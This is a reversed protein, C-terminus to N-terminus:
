RYTVPFGSHGGTASDHLAQLVRQHLASSNGLWVRGHHRIIGQYLQFAGEQEKKVSLEQLLKVAQADTAYSKIVEDLWAPQSSSITALTPQAPYRCRSLADAVRNDQGKRYCIRYNLGLLKTFAKQQWPTHLRQDDLHTLSRHDTKIIFESTQLYPRWHDVALIIAVFEKEYTSLGKSKPGLARSIFALPHSSQSLVAGVGVDSADTEVVFPKSFDPMALVPASALAQKLHQFAEEASASWTFISGKRLLDTLPKSIIGFNRVFKRYYGALGLFGRLQKPTTPQIWNKIAEIKSNDTSVGQDSIVHGLYSLSRQGFACKSLKVKWDHQRLLQLVQSLHHIHEDLTASYVLIDDFFVLVCKRLLPALTQNMASLFTAPAGTLGFSMVLYESHGRHTQFATKHEEGRALRIQHYGARLDLKSFWSAGHLEDLLEEIIPMPYKTKVSSANLRRYDICVRWTGDKKKILLAPSSYASNSHRIVGNKLMEAVQRELEDKLAPLYRYPRLNVPQAGPLLPIAHDCARRPPLSTPEEFLDSFQEILPRVAQPVPAEPTEEVTCLQLVVSISNRRTMGRLQDYSIENCQNTVASVGQLHIPLGQYEFSMSKRVWDVEMPSHMSLWDMGLIVDYSGLQLVRLDSHFSCGQIWWTCNPIVSACQLVSGDAVRVQVEKGLPQAGEMNKALEANIFSHTSGSDVLMLVQRKQLWGQLRITGKCESGSIAQVSIAMLNDEDQEQPLEPPEKNGEPEDSLM